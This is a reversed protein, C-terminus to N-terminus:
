VAVKLMRFIGIPQATGAVAFHQIRPPSRGNFKIAGATMLDYSMQRNRQIIDSGFPIPPRSGLWIGPGVLRCAVLSAGRVFTGPLIYYEFGEEVADGWSTDPTDVFKDAVSAAMTIRASVIQGGSPDPVDFVPNSYEWVIGGDIDEGGGSDQEGALTIAQTATIAQDIMEDIRGDEDLTIGNFYIGNSQIGQSVGTIRGFQANASMVQARRLVVDGRDLAIALSDGDIVGLSTETATTTSAARAHNYDYM